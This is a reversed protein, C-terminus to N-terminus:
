ATHHNCYGCCRGDPCYIAACASCSPVKPANAVAALSRPPQTPGPPSVVNNHKNFAKTLEEVAKAFHPSIKNWIDCMEIVGKLSKRQDQTLPHDAQLIAYLHEQVQKM